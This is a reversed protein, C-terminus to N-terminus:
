APVSLSINHEKLEREAYQLLAEDAAETIRLRKVAAVIRLKAHTEERLSVAPPRKYKKRPRSM